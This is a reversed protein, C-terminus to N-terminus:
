RHRWLPLCRWARAGVAFVAAGVAATAAALLPASFTFGFGHLTGGSFVFNASGAVPALAQWTYTGSAHPNAALVGGAFGQGGAFAVALLVGEAVFVWLIGILWRPRPGPGGCEIDLYSRALRRLGGLRRVAEVSGLQESAARLNTRLEGLIAEQRELSLASIMVDVRLIAYEIRAHDLWTLTGTM